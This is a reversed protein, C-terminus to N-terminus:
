KEVALLAALKRWVESEFCGSMEDRMVRLGEYAPVGRRYTKDSTLDDFVDIVYCVKAHPHIQDRKLRQPYGSGDCAEHHELAVHYISDAPLGEGELIEAGFEPHREFVRREEITLPGRKDLIRKDVKTKGVDHLLAGLGFHQIEETGMGLEKALALAYLCVNVSHSYVTYASSMVSLLYKISRKQEIACIFTDNVLKEARRMTDASAPNRWVDEILGSAAEYALELKKSLDTREDTLIARLNTELYRRYSKRDGANVYLAKVGSDMLRQLHGEEIALDRQRYLVYNKGEGESEAEKAIFLDFDVISGAQLGELHVAIYESM